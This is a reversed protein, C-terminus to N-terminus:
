TAWAFASIEHEKIFIEINKMINVKDQAVFNSTVLTDKNSM